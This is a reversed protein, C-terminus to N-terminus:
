VLRQRRRRIALGGILLMVGGALPVMLPSPVEPISGGSGGPGCVQGVVYTAGYNSDPARDAAASYYVGGVMPVNFTGHTDSFTNTLAAGQPPSGVLARPINIVITGATGGSYAGTNFTGTGSGTTTYATGSYTGVTFTQASLTTDAQAQAFYTTGSYTWYATWFGGAM